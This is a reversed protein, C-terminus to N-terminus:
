RSAIALNAWIPVMSMQYAWGESSSNIIATRLAAASATLVLLFLLSFCAAFLGSFVAAFACM